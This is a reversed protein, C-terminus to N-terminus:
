RHCSDCGLPARENGRKENEDRHCNVCWGMTLSEEQRAVGRTTMDGHCQECDFGAVRVHTSHNFYVFDQLNHVRVWRIPEKKEWADRLHQINDYAEQTKGDVKGYEHCNMCTSLNPITAHRSEDAGTHCYQCDIGLTGAHLRHSYPVPQEPEYGQQWNPVQFDNFEFLAPLSFGFTAVFFLIALKANM